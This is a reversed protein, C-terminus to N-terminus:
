TGELKKTALMVLAHEQAEELTDAVFRVDPSKGMIYAMVHPTYKGEIKVIYAQTMGEANELWWSIGSDLVTWKM